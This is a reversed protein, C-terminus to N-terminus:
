EFLSAGRESLGLEALRRTVELDWQRAGGALLRGYCVRSPWPRDDFAGAYLANISATPVPPAVASLREVERVIADQKIPDLKV